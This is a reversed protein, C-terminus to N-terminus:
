YVPYPWFQRLGSPQRIKPNILYRITPRGGAKLRQPLGKIWDDDELWEVAARVIKDDTLYRWQRRRVDRLTFGDQLAGEQLKITLTKAARFGEDLLLGYCRRAHAELLDCWLAARRITRATLPGKGDEALHFILALALMLKEYKALHQCILGEKESAIRNHLNESWEAFMRRADDDLSLYPIKDPIAQWDDATASAIKAFSRAGQADHDSHPQDRWQWEGPDPYVLLQFRQLLGDNALAGDIQELYAVLKDPQMGGILSLCLHQIITTGRKIRDVTFPEKGNWSELFFAREGERGDRDWAALLGVLEDRAM